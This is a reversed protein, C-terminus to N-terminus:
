KSIRNNENSDYFKMLAPRKKNDRKMGLSNVPEIFRVTLRLEKNFLGGLAERRQGDQTKNRPETVRFITMDEFAVRKDQELLITRTM